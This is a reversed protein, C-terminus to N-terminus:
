VTSARAPVTAMLSTVMGSRTSGAPALTPRIPNAGVFWGHRLLACVVVGGLARKAGDREPALVVQEAAQVRLALACGRHVAEDAGRLEISDVRLSIQAVHDFSDGVVRGVTHM